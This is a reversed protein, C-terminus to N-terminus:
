PLPLGWRLLSSTLFIRWAPEIGHNLVYVLLLLSGTVLAILVGVVIAVLVVVTIPRSASSMAENNM